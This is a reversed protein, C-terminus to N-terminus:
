PRRRWRGPGSRWGRPRRRLRRRAMSVSSWKRVAYRTLLAKLDRPLQGTGCLCTVEKVGAVWMSLADLPGEVLVVRPSSQLAQWNLVGRLEGPLLMHRESGDGEIRRGYLGVVGHDPHELPVVLCGLFHEKGQANLVGLQRLAESLPGSEPLTSRLSGDCLGVKFAEVIERSGLGRSTLYEQGQPVERFRSAYLEVM